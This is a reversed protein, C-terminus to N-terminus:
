RGQTIQFVCVLFGKVPQIHYINKIFVSRRVLEYTSLIKQELNQIFLFLIHFFILFLLVLVLSIINGFLKNSRGLGMEKKVTQSNFLHTVAVFVLLVM